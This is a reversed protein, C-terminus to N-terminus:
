TPQTSHSLPPSLSIARRPLVIKLCRFVDSSLGFVTGSRDVTRTGSPSRNRRFKVPPRGPVLYSRVDLKLGVPPLEMCVKLFLSKVIVRARAHTTPSLVILSSCPSFRCSITSAFKFVPPLPIGICHPHHSHHSSSAVFLILCM